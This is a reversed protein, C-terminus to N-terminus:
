LGITRFTVDRERDTSWRGREWRIRTGDALRATARGCCPRGWLTAVLPRDAEPTDGLGSVIHEAPYTVVIAGERVWM